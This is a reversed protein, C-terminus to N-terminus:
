HGDNGRGPRPPRQAAQAKYALPGERIRRLIEAQQETRKAVYAMRAELQRLKDEADLAMHITTDIDGTVGIADEIGEATAYTHRRKNLMAELDVRLKENAEISKGIWHVAYGVGALALGVVVGVILLLLATSSDLLM